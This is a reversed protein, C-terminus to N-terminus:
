GCISASDIIDLLRFMKFGSIKLYRQDEFRGGGFHRSRRCNSGRVNWETVRSHKRRQRSFLSEELARWILPRVATQAALIADKEKKWRKAMAAYPTWGPKKPNKTTFAVYHIMTKTKVGALWENKKAEKKKKAKKAM